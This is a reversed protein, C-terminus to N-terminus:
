LFLRLNNSTVPEFYNRVIKNGFMILRNRMKLNGQMAKELYYSIEDVSSTFPAFPYDDWLCDFDFNNKLSIRILPVGTAITELNSVSGGTMFVVDSKKICEQVSGSAWKYVPFDTDDLIDDFRKLITTPHSKIFININSFQKLIKGTIELLELNHNTEYNLIILAKKYKKRILSQKTKNNKNVATFRLNPGPILMDVPFGSTQLIKRYRRGSCIIQDPLPHYSIEEPLLFFGLQEKFWVTHQFGTIKSQPYYQRIALIFPKESSNNEFPYIFQYIRINQKSFKDLL